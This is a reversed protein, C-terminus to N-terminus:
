RVSERANDIYKQKIEQESRAELIDQMESHSQAVGQALIEYSRHTLSEGIKAEEM